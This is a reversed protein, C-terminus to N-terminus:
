RITKSIFGSAKSPWQLSAGVAKKRSAIKRVIGICSIKLKAEMGFFLLFSNNGFMSVSAPVVKLENAENRKMSGINRSYTVYVVM